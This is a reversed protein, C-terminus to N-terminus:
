AAQIETEHQVDARFAVQKRGNEDMGDIIEQCKNRHRLAPPLQIRISEGAQGEGGAAFGLYGFWRARRIAAVFRGGLLSSFLRNRGSGDSENPKQGRLVSEEFKM